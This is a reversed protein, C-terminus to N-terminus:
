PKAERDTYLVEVVLSRGEASTAAEGGTESVPVPADFWPSAYFARIVKPLGDPDRSVLSLGVQFSDPGVVVPRGDATKEKDQSLALSVVRVDNPLTKELRTLFRSWSFARLRALANAEEAGAQMGALDFRALKKESERRSEELRAIEARLSAVQERSTRSGELYSRVTRADVLTLVVVALVLLAAALNAPRSDVFPRRALNPRAAAM